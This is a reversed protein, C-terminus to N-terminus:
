ALGRVIEIVLATVAGGALLWVVRSVAAAGQLRARWLEIEGVRTEVKGLREVTERHSAELSRVVTVLESIVPRLDDPGTM